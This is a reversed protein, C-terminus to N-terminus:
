NGPILQLDLLEYVPTDPDLVETATSLNPQAVSACNSDPFDPLM